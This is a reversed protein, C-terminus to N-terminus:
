SVLPDRGCDAVACWGRKQCCPVPTSLSSPFSRPNTCFSPSPNPNRKYVLETIFCMMINPEFGAREKTPLIM